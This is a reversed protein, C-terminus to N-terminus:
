RGRTRRIRFKRALEDEIIGEPIGKALRERVFAIVERPEAGFPAPPRDDEPILEDDPGPEWM